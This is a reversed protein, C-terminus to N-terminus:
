RKSESTKRRFKVHQNITVLVLNVLRMSTELLSWSM